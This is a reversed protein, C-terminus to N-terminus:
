VVVREQLRSVIRSIVQQVRQKTVKYKRGIAEMSLGRKYYLRFIARDRPPLSQVYRWTKAVASAVAQSREEPASFKDMDGWPAVHRSESEAARMVEQIERLIPWRAHTAFRFGLEPRRTEVAEILGIMGASVLDAAEVGAIRYPACYYRVLGMNHEVIANRNATSRDAVYAAWLRKDIEEREAKTM